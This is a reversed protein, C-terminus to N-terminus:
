HRDKRPPIEPPAKRRVVVEWDGTEADNFTHGDIDVTLEDKGAEFVSSVLVAAASANTVKHIGEGKKRYDVLKLAFQKVLLGLSANDWDLFPKEREAKSTILRAM